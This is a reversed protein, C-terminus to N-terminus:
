GAMQGRSPHPASGTPGGAGCQGCGCLAREGYSEGGTCREMDDVLRDCEKLAAIRILFKITSYGAKAAHSASKKRGMAHAGDPPIADKRGSENGASQAPGDM